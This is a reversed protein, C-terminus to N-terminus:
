ELSIGFILLSMDKSNGGRAEISEIPKYANPNVWTFTPLNVFAAGGLTGFLGADTRRGLATDNAAVINERYALPVKVATGDAYRVLYSGPVTASFKVINAHMEADTLVQRSTAHMFTVVRATANVPFLATAVAAAAPDAGKEVLIADDFWATTGAGDVSFCLRLASFGPPLPFERTEWDRNKAELFVNKANAYKFGDSGSYSWIRATGPGEVRVRFRVLYERASDVALDQLARHFSTGKVRTMKLAGGEVAYLTDDDPRELQWGELGEEFDANKLGPFASGSLAVAAPKGGQRFVECRAGRYNAFPTALFAPDTGAPLGLLAMLAEGTVLQESATLTRPAIARSLSKDWYAAGEMIADPVFALHAPNCDEPSWSYYATLACARIWEAPMREPSSDNWATLLLGQGQHAAISHALRPMSKPSFWPCGVTPLGAARFMAISPYDVDYEKSGDYKWDFITMDRPLRALLEPGCMDFQKGNQGPDIMDGWLCLRVGKRKFLADSQKVGEVFWDSPRWNRARAAASTVTHGYHAEDMAVCFSRPKLTDIIEEQLALMVKCAEPTATDLNRYGEQLVDEDDVLLATGGPMTKLYQVRGWSAFYPIPEIGRARAYDFLEILEAKTQGRRGVPYSDFPFVTPGGFSDLYVLLKNIRLLFAVDVVRKTLGVMLGRFPLRPADYLTLAPLAAGPAYRARNALLMLTAIGRLLGDRTRGVVAAEGAGLELRFAEPSRLATRQAATLSRDSFVDAVRLAVALKGTKGASLAEVLSAKVGADIATGREEIRVKGGLAFTGARTTLKLPQGALLLDPVGLRHTFVPRLAAPASPAAAPPLKLTILPFERPVAYFQGAIPAWTLNEEAGRTCHRTFNAYLKQDGGVGPGFLDSLRVRMECSWQGKGVAAAADWDGTFGIYTSPYWTISPRGLNQQDWHRAGAANVIVHAFSLQDTSLFTEACDDTYIAIPDAAGKAAPRRAKLGATDPEDFRYGVYLYADKVAVLAEGSLAAPRAVDGLM